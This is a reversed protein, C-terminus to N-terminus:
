EASVPPSKVCYAEVQFWPQLTNIKLIRLAIHLRRSHWLCKSLWHSSWLPYVNRGDIVQVEYDPSDLVARNIGCDYLVLEVPAILLGRETSYRASPM